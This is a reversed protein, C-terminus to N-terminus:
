LKSFTLECGTQQRFLERLQDQEKPSPLNQLKAGVRNDQPYFSPQKALGWSAPILAKAADILGIPNAKPRYTIRWGTQEALENILSQHRQGL